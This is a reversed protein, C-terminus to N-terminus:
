FSDKKRSRASVSNQEQCEKLQSEINMLEIVQGLKEAINKILLKENMHFADRSSKPKEELYGVRVHGLKKKRIKIPATFNWPTERFNKSVFRKSEFVIEVWCDHSFKLGNPIIELSREFIENYTINPVGSIDSIDFLCNIQRNLGNTDVTLQQLKEEIALKETMDSLIIAAGPEGKQTAQYHCKLRYWHIKNGRVAQVQDVFKLGKRISGKLTLPHQNGSILWSPIPQHLIKEIPLGIIMAARLNAFLIFGKENVQLFGEDLHDMLQQCKQESERLTGNIREMEGLYRELLSLYKKKERNRLHVFVFLLGTNITLMVLLVLIMFNQGDEISPLKIHGTILSIFLNFPEQLIM